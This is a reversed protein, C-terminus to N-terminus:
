EYEMHQQIEMTYEFHQCNMSDICNNHSNRFHNKSIKHIGKIVSFRVSIAVIQVSDPIHCGIM